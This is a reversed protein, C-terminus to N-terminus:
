DYVTDFWRAELIAARAILVNDSPRENSVLYELVPTHCWHFQALREQIKQDKIYPIALAELAYETDTDGADIQLHVLKDQLQTGQLVEPSPIKSCGPLSMFLILAIQLKRYLGM